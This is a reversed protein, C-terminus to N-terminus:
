WGSDDLGSSVEVELMDDETMIDASVDEVAMDVVVEDEAGIEELLVALAVTEEADVVWVVAPDLAVGM